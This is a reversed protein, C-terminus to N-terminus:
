ISSSDIREYQGFALNYHDFDQYVHTRREYGQYGDTIGLTNTLDDSSLLIVSFSGPQFIDLVHRILTPSAPINTEFSAYSWEPEPTVHITFYGDQLLGNASYGCPEFQFSDMMACPYLTSICTRESVRKGGESRAMAHDCYFEKAIGPDLDLMLIELTEDCSNGGTISTNNMDCQGTVYLHWASSTTDGVTFVQGHRGFMRDMFRIEEKWSQHPSSQLEPFLFAKRSYFCICPEQYGCYKHAITFVHPLATLLTTTGCTKIIMKHPYIFMSSESLLYADMYDNSIVGLISCKAADRLM